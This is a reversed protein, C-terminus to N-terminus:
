LNNVKWSQPKKIRFSGAARIDEVSSGFQVQYNGAATEWASVAENFSALEYAPVTFSLTQSEGPALSRTKGFAKLERSPKELGGYPASVYVEIVEKGAVPGTNTM